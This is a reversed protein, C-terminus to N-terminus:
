VNSVPDACLGITPKNALAFNLVETDGFVNADDALEFPVGQVKIITGKPISVIETKNNESM